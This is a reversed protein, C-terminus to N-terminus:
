RYEEVGTIEFCAGGDDSEGAMIQWGHADVIRKVVALGIGTGDEDTSYGFEFLSEEDADDIGDGDDEVAFGNQAETVTVTSTGGHDNANRFLNEFAQQLRARDAAVTRDIDVDLEMEGTDATEWADTACDSLSVPETDEITQSQRAMTLLVEILEDMREHSTDAHNLAMQATEIDPEGDELADSAAETWGKATSLPNRLDHSVIDAFEELRQNQEELQRERQKRDTIDRLVVVYGQTIDFQDTVQTVEPDYTREPGEDAATTFEGAPEDDAIATALWEAFVPNFETLDVRKELNGLITTAADNYEIVTLEEDVIVAPDTMERFFRDAAVPATRLFDYRYLAVWVAVGQGTTLVPTIDLQPHVQIGLTFLLTGGTNAAVAALIILAQYQYLSQTQRIFRLLLVFASLIVGLAVIYQSLLGPGYVEAPLVFLGFSDFVIDKIILDAPNIIRLVSYGVAWAWLGQPVIAPIWNTDGTYKIVFTFWAAVSLAAGIGQGVVAARTLLGEPGLLMILYSGTWVGYAALLRAFADSVPHDIRRWAFGGLGFNLIVALGVLVAIIVSLLAANSV